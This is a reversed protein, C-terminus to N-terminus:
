NGSSSLLPKTKMSFEFSIVVRDGVKQKKWEGIEIEKVPDLGHMFSRKTATVSNSGADNAIHTALAEQFDLFSQIAQEEPNASGSQPAYSYGYLKLTQTILPRYVKAPKPKKPKIGKEKNKEWNSRAKKSAVTEIKDEEETLKILRIYVNPPRLDSILNLKESWLLRDPPDLVSLVELRDQGLKEIEALDGLQEKKKDVKANVAKLNKDSDALNRSAIKHPEWLM